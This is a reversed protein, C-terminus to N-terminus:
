PESRNELIALGKRPKAWFMKTRVRVTPQSIPLMASPSLNINSFSRVVFIILKEITKFLDGSNSFIEM